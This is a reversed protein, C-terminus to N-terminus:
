RNTRAPADGRPLRDILAAVCRRIEDRSWRFQFKWGGIPDAIEHMGGFSGLMVVKEHSTPFRERLYTAHAVEMVAILDAWATNEEDVAQSRHDHLPAGIEGCVAIAHAEAPHDVIGLTGASRVEVALGRDAAYARALAEAMPSRCLNGSCVFLLRVPRDSPLRM